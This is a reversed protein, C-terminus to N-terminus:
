RKETSETSQNWENLTWKQLIFIGHDLAMETQKYERQKLLQMKSNNRQFCYIFNRLVKVVLFEQYLDFIM